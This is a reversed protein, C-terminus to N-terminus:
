SVEFFCGGAIIVDNRINVNHQLYALPPGLSRTSSQPEKKINQVEKKIEVIECKMGGMQATIDNMRSTVDDMQHKMDDMQHKMQGMHRTLESSMNMVIEKITSMEERVEGMETKTVYCHFKRKGYAVNKGCVECKGQRFICENDRTIHKIKETSLWM